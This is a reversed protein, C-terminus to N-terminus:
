PVWGLRSRCQRAAVIVPKRRKASGALADLLLTWKQRRLQPLRCLLLAQTRLWIASPRRTVDRRGEHISAGRVAAHDLSAMGSIGGSGGSDQKLADALCTIPILSRADVNRHDVANALSIRRPRAFSPTSTPTTMPPPLCEKGRRRPRKWPRRGSDGAVVHAHEGVMEIRQGQSGRQLSPRRNGHHKPSRWAPVRSLAEGLAM